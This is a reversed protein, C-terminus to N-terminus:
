NNYTANVVKQQCKHRPRANVAVCYRDRDITVQPVVEKMGAPLVVIRSRKPSYFIQFYCVAGARADCGFPANAAGAPSISTGLALAAAALVLNRM